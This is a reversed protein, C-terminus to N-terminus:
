PPCATVSTIWDAILKAGDADVVHTGIQPMRALDLDLMRLYIVSARPRGPALLKSGTVGLDGKAPDVNCVNMAKLDATSTWRFDIRPYNGDPRHCIACNAHLYARARDTLTGTAMPLGQTPTPYPTPLAAPYPAPLADVYARLRDLQNAGGAELLALQRTELGLSRGAYPSHCLMCDDRNPYEWGRPKGGITFTGSVRGDDRGIRVADTQDAKWQYSYGVWGTQPDTSNRTLLRTEVKVGAFSFEKVLVTGVPFEWHGDGGPKGDGCEAPNRACDTVHIKGGPPLRFWRLKDAGDSWLPSAVHYPVLYSAPRKVDLADMCGTRSLLEPPDVDASPPALCNGPAPILFVDAPLDPSAPRQDVATPPVDPAPPPLDPAPPAVDPPPSYADPVGSAAVAADSSADSRMVGVLYTGGQCGATLALIALRARM